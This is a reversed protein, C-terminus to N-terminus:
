GPAVVAAGTGTGFDALDLTQVMRDLVAVNTDYDFPPRDHTDFFLTAPEGDRTGLDVVYSTIAMGEPYLGDGSAQYSLRVAQQGEVTTVARTADPDQRPRTATAFGVREVHGVIAAVRVDTADPVTFPEPNFQTCPEVVDGPNTSWSAPASIAFGAPSECRVLPGGPGPPATTGPGPQATSTPGPPPSTTPDAPDPAGTESTGACGTAFALLAAAFTTLSRM